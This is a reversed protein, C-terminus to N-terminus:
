VMGEEKQIHLVERLCEFGETKIPAQLNERKKLYDLSVEDLAAFDLIDEGNRVTLLGKYTTQLCRGELTLGFM